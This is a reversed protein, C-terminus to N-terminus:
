IAIREFDEFSITQNAYKTLTELKTHGTSRLISNLPINANMCLTIYTRRCTHSSILKYKPIFYDKVEKLCRRVKKEETMFLENELLFDKLERNFYAIDFTPLKYNYKQWISKSLTNLPIIVDKVTKKTTIAIYENGQSDTKLHENKNLRKLDSYRLGTFCNFVFLDRIKEQYGTLEIDYLQKIETKDLTVINNDFKKVRYEKVENCFQYNFKREIWRLFTKLTIIRGSVTNNNLGMNILYNRFDHMFDESNMKEITMGKNENTYTLLNSQILTYSRLTTVSNFEKKKFELFQSYLVNIDTNKNSNFDTKEKLGTINGKNDIWHQCEKNTFVLSNYSMKYRIYSDVLSKKYIIESNKSQYNPYKSNYLLEGTMFRKDVRINTNIRLISNKKKFYIYIYEYDGSKFAKLQSNINTNM